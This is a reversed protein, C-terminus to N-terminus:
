LFKQRCEQTKETVPSSGWWFEAMCLPQMGHLYAYQLMKPACCEGAGAPPIHNATEAFISCLDRSEGRANLMNFQMFLWHQLDDSKHKREARLKNILDDFSELKEEKIHINELPRKRSVLKNEPM